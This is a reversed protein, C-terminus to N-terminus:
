HRQRKVTRRSTKKIKMTKRRKGGLTAGRSQLLEIIDKNEYDIATQLPTEGSRNRINVNAGKNLLLEVIDIYGKQCALHLASSGRALQANVNIGEASILMKAIDRREFYIAAALPFLTNKKNSMNLDAGNEILLNAIETFGNHSAFNLATNGEDDQRNIDILHDIDEELLTRTEILNGESCAEFFANTARNRNKKNERKIEETYYPNAKSLQYRPVIATSHPGRQQSVRILSPLRSSGERRLASLLEGALEKSASKSSAKSAKSPTKSM